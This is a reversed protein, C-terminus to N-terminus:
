LDRGEAVLTEVRLVYEKAVPVYAKTYVGGRHKSKAPSSYELVSMGQQQESTRRLEDDWAERPSPASELPAPEDQYDQVPAPEAEPAPADDPVRRFYPIAVLLTVVFLVSVVLALTSTPVGEVVSNSGVLWALFAFAALSVGLLIWFPWARRLRFPREDAM